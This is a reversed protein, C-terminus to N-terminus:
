FRQFDERPIRYPNHGIKRILVHKEDEETGTFPRVTLVMAVKPGIKSKPDKYARISLLYTGVQTKMAATMKKNDPSIGTGEAVFQYTAPDLQIVRLVKRNGIDSQIQFSFLASVGDVKAEWMGEITAWPFPLQAELPFPVDPNRLVVVSSIASSSVGFSFVLAFAALSLVLRQVWRDKQGIAKQTM